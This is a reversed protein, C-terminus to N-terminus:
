KKCRHVHSINVKCSSKSMSDKNAKPILIIHAEQFSNLLIGELSDPLIEEGLKM